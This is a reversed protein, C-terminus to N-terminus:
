KVIKYEQGAAIFSDGIIEVNTGDVNFVLSNNNCKGQFKVNVVGGISLSLVYNIEDIKNISAKSVERNNYVCSYNGIKSACDSVEVSSISSKTNNKCNNFLLITFFAVIAIKNYM